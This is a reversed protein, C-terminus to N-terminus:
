RMVGRNKLVQEALGDAESRMDDLPGSLFDHEETGYHYIHWYIGEFGGPYGVRRAWRSLTRNQGPEPSGPAHPRSGHLVPLTYDVGQEGGAVVNIQDGGTELARVTGKLRSSSTPIERKINGVLNEAWAVLIAEKHGPWGEIVEDMESTLGDEISLDLRAGSM